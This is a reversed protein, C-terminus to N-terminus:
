HKSVHELLIAYMSDIKQNLETHQRDLRNVTDKVSGGGNPKLEAKIEQFYHRVLFRVGGAVLVVTSLVTFVFTAWETTGTM